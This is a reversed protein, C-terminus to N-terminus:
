CDLYLSTDGPFLEKRVFKITQGKVATLIDMAKSTDDTVTIFHENVPTFRISIRDLNAIKIEEFDEDQDCHLILICYYLKRLIDYGIVICFPSLLVEQGTDDYATYLITENNVWSILVKIIKDNLM